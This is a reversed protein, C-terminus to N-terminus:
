PLLESVKAIAFNFQFINRETFTIVFEFYILNTAYHSEQSIIAAKVVIGVTPLTNPPIAPTIQTM